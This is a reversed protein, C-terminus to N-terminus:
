RKGGAPGTVSPTETCELLEALIGEATNGAIKAKRSLILRHACVCTFVSRVDEVVVYDRGQLRAAAKAMRCVALAGRPSVGLEILDHERTAEALRTVYEYIADSVQTKGAADQLTLLGQADTVPVIGELPNARHRDKLIEVQSKFDPYGMKLRVMFRDLQSAPLMQTGASGVPNQTALVIFPAPLPHTVGDVTVQLEEMAELLASQTKSSTRNIEDALLLNTIVAGEQYVFADQAKRYVSFGVIDSPMTDPTFQVRHYRLGLVRSFALALTTKGVGPVDEMLVHGGSLIAMLVKEAVEDKGIIVKRIEALIANTQNQM